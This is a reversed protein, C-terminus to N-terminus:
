REGAPEVARSGIYEALKTSFAQCFGLVVDSSVELHREIIAFERHVPRSARGFWGGVELVIPSEAGVLRTSRSTHVVGASISQMRTRSLEQCRM